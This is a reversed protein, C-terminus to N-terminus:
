EIQKIIDRLAKITPERKEKPLNEIDQILQNFVNFFTNVDVQLAKMIKEITDIKVNLQKSELRYIYNFGLDAKEALYEQTLGKELRLHRIQKAVFEKLSNNNTM